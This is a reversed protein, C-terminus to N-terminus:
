YAMDALRAATMEIGQATLYEAQGKRDLYRRVTPFMSRERHKDLITSVSRVIVV